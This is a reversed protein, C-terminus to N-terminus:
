IHRIQWLGTNIQCDTELLLGAHLYAIYTYRLMTARERSTKVEEAIKVAEHWKM